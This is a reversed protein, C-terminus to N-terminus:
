RNRFTYNPRRASDRIAQGSVSIENGTVVNFAAGSSIVVGAPGTLRNGAGASVGGIVNRLAGEALEIAPGTEDTGIFTNGLVVTDASRISLVGRILNGDGDESGGIRHFPTYLTVTCTCPLPNGDRDVGVRNGVFTVFVSWDGFEVGGAIVNGQVLHTGADVKLAAVDPDDPVAGPVIRTGTPDTGILNGQLVCGEGVLTVDTQNGAILNADAPNPGGIVNGGRGQCLVGGNQLGGTATGAANTGIRNGVIRHDSGSIDIGSFGNAYVTNGSVVAGAGDFGIGTATFNRITLGLVNAGDTLTLGTEVAGQGDLIVGTGRADITVGGPVHPLISELTIVGPEATPFVSPHFGIHDGGSTELLCARLSGPGADAVSTVTCEPAPGIQLAPRPGARDASVLTASPFAVPTVGAPPVEDWPGQDLRPRAGMAAPAGGAETPSANWQLIALGAPGMAAYVLDRDVSIRSIKGPLDARGAIRPRSPDSADVALLASGSAVFIHGEVYAMQHSEFPLALEGVHTPRRPDTLRFVRLGQGDVAVLLPGATLVSGVSAEARVTSVLVPASPDALDIVFVGDANAPVYGMSGLVAVGGGLYGQELESSQTRLHGIECPVPESGDVVLLGVEIPYYITTGSVLPWQSQNFGSFDPGGAL